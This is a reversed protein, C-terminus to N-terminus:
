YVKVTGASSEEKNKRNVRSGITRHDLTPLREGQGCVDAVVELLGSAGGVM